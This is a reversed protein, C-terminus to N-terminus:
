KEDGQPRVAAGVKSESDTTIRHQFNGLIALNETSEGSLLRAKDTAIAASMVLRQVDNPNSPVLAEPNSMAAKFLSRAGGSWM